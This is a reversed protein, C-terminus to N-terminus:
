VRWVSCWVGFRGICSRIIFSTFCLLSSLSLSAPVAPLEAMKADLEQAKLYAAKAEDLKMLFELAYGKRYQGIALSPKLKVVLEADAL